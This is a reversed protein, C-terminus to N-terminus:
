MSRLRVYSAIGYLARNRDEDYGGVVVIERSM